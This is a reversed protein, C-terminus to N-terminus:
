RFRWCPITLSSGDGTEDRNRVEIDGLRHTEGGCDEQIHEVATRDVDLYISKADLTLFSGLLPAGGVSGFPTRHAPM